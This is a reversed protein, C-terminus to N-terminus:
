AASRARAILEACKKQVEAMNDPKLHEVYEAVSSEMTKSASVTTGTRTTEPRKKTAIISVGIAGADELESRWENVEAATVDDIKFRVYNGKVLSALEGDAVDEKHLDIFQPAQSPYHEIRDEWVLLFGAKTGPDNWTQHALAGISIVKGGEMVKHDHYHGAFVRRFGYAALEAAELGHDPIGKIVANVPAHIIVDLDSAKRGSKAEFEKSSYASLVNRLDNLDQFWPIVLVDGVIERQTFVHFADIKALQQMANGISTSDRGELDHNGPIAWTELAPYTDHIQQIAEFTPNFVSPEIRGRVHFLDGGYFSETGGQEALVEHARHLEDLIIQLRTNVGNAGVTAFQSWNHAHQDSTILYPYKM